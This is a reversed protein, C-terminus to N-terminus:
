ELDNEFEGIHVPNVYPKLSNALISLKVIELNSLLSAAYGKKVVFNFLIAALFM